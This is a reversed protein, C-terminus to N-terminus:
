GKRFKKYNNLIGNINDRGVPNASQIDWMPLDL